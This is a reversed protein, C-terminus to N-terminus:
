EKFLDEMQKILITKKDKKNTEIFIYKDNFYLIEPSKSYCQEKEMQSILFNFNEINTSKQYNKNFAYLSLLICISAAIIWYTEILNRRQLFHAFIIFFFFLLFNLLFFFVCFIYFGNLKILESINFILILAIILYLFIRFKEFRTKFLEKLKFKKANYLEETSNNLFFGLYILIPPSFFLIMILGDSILQSISFFRIMNISIKGLQVVQWIGGFVTPIIAIIAINENLIKIYNNIKDKM